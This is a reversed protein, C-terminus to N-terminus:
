ASSPMRSRTRDRPSPSTYLLCCYTCDQRCTTGASLPQESPCSLNGNTDCTEGPDCSGNGCTPATSSLTITRNSCSGENLEQLATGEGEGTLVVVGAQCTQTDETGSHAFTRTIAPTDVPTTFVEAETGTLKAEISGNCNLDLSWQFRATDDSEPVGADVTLTVELPSIGNVPVADLSYCYEGMLSELSYAFTRTCTTPDTWEGCSDQGRFKVMYLGSKESNRVVDWTTSFTAKYVNVILDGEAQRWSECLLVADNWPAGHVLLAALWDALDAGNSVLGDAAAQELGHSYAFGGVPFAPSAMMMLRLFAASEPVGAGEKLTKM